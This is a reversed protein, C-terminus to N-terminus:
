RCVLSEWVRLPRRHCVARTSLAWTATPRITGDREARRMAAGLARPDTVHLTPPMAQWVDDSTLRAQDHAVRAIVLVAGEMWAAHADELRELALDRLLSGQLGTM